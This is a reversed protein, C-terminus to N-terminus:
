PRREAVVRVSRIYDLRDFERELYRNGEMQVRGQDPGNGSPAGEGYGGYLSQVVGFGDVVEGFPPFGMADLNLNDGLNIFLQTTRTDPGGHAYTIRGRTNMEVQPDDPMTAERWVASRAPDGSIGFQAVFGDLVRFFRTGDYFGHRVLNYFRDAGRPAWDRHVEITFEGKTTDFLVRYSGPGQAIMEPGDPDALPEIAAAPEPDPQPAADPEAAPSDVAPAPEADPTPAEDVATEGCAIALGALILITLLARGSRRM